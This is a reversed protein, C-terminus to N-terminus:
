LAALAAGLRGSLDGRGSEYMPGCGDSLVVRLRAMGRATVPRPSHLRLTITDILDEAASINNLHVPVRPSRPTGGSRADYVAQRLARAISEREAASTLRAEHVALASGAPAPVGVALQRDFQYARLRATVRAVLSPRPAAPRRLADSAAAFLDPSIRNHPMTM